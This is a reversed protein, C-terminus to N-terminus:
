KRIYISLMHEVKHYAIALSEFVSLIENDDLNATERSEILILREEEGSHDIGLSVPLIKTNLVLLDRYFAEAAIGQTSGLDTEFYLMSGELKLFVDLDERTVQWLGEGMPTVLYDHGELFDKLPTQSRSTINIGKM